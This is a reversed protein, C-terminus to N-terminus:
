KGQTTLAFDFTQKGGKVVVQLPTSTPDGYAVPFRRRKAGPAQPAAAGEGVQPPLGGTTLDAMAQLDTITVRHTGAAVGDKGAPLRYRGEADTFASANRGGGGPVFRVEADPLPAGDVTVRGEVEAGGQGLCGAAALV